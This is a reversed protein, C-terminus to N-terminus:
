PPRLTATLRRHQTHEAQFPHKRGREMCVYIPRHTSDNSPHWKFGEGSDIMPQVPNVFQTGDDVIGATAYIEYVFGFFRFVAARELQEVLSHTDKIVVMSM